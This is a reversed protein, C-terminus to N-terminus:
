SHRRCRILVAEGRKLSIHNWRRIRRGCTVIAKSRGCRVRIAEGPDLFRTKTHKTDPCCKVLVSEGRRLRIVKRRRRNPDLVVREHRVRCGCDSM